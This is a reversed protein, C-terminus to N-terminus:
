RKGKESGKGKGDANGGGGGKGKGNGKGKGGGMRKRYAPDLWGSSGSSSSYPLPEFSALLAQVRACIEPAVM